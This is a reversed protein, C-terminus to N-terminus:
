EDGKLARDLLARKAAGDAKAMQFGAAAAFGIGCLMWSVVFVPITIWSELALLSRAAINRYRPRRIAAVLKALQQRM